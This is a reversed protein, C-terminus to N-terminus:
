AAFQFVGGHQGCERRERAGFRDVLGQLVVRVDDEAQRAALVRAGRCERGHGIEIRDTMRSIAPVGDVGIETGDFPWRCRWEDFLDGVPESGRKMDHAALGAAQDFAPALAPGAGLPAVDVQQSILEDRRERARAQAEAGAFGFDGRDTGMESRLEGAFGDDGDDANAALFACARAAAGTHFASVRKAGGALLAPVRISV